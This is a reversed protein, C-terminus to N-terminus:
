RHPPRFEDATAEAPAAAALVATLSWEELLRREAPDTPRQQTQRESLIQLRHEVTRL